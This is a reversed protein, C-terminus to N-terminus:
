LALEVVTVGLDGEGYAGNRFSKARPDGRLFGQIGARLAGTGKGHIIAVEHLGTLAADDLYKDVRAIADELREGRLDIESRMDLARSIHPGARAASGSGRGGPEGAAGAGPEAAGGFGAGAGGSGFGGSRRGVGDGAGGNGDRAGLGGGFNGGAGGYGGRAGGGYGGSDGAGGYGDGRTGGAGKAGGRRGGSSGGSSGGGSRGGSSGGFGGDPGGGFGDESRGSAGGSSSGGYYGGSRSISNGGSGGEAGGGYGGASGAGGGYGGAGGDGGGSRGGGSRRQVARLNSVHTNITIIGARVAVAGNRDPPAVVTATQGLDALLVDDGPRLRKPPLEEGAGAEGAPPARYALAEDVEDIRRKLRRRLEGAESRRAEADGEEELRRLRALIEEADAKSQALLRKAAERAERLIAEKQGEAARRRRELEDALREAELRAGSARQREEEAAARNKEISQLVDEFAISENSLFERARELIDEPLGLKLSIAFANSKGPVGILLRYTPRLTAVDFECCANEVGPTTLAYVKLESYHTTAVAFAGTQHLCELIATAIAAGEAPDTGAGLEDLLALTSDDAAAIMRVINKMHSSFTSLSQEISQEDGIDAFVQGFARISSGPAAPINLGAQAMLTLLGVTKLAVTKGGTNPGTVVLASVGEGMWFDMPVVAGKPLLPHRGARIRIRGDAAVSPASCDLDLSLKGKAFLFDLAGLAEINAQLAPSMAAAEATLEALLREIERQERARLGRIENNTEVVAMPEIFVTAGSASVDHVLGSLESKHETKVPVVYRDQRMTVISDQMLKQYKPSRIIANLKDKISDQLQRIQRRISQLAPSADDALEDEGIICSGIRNELRQNETLCAVMEAVGGPASSGHSSGPASGPAVGGAPAERGYRKLRRAAVLNSAVRLLESPSLSAGLEMRKVIARIDHIGGLPPAGNRAIFGEAESTRALELLIQPVHGLPALEDARQRGIESVCKEALMAKIKDFELVRLTAADMGM